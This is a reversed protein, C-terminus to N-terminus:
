LTTQHGRLQWIHRAQFERGTVDGTLLAAHAAVPVVNESQGVVQYADHDTVYGPM